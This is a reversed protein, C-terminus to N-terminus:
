GGVWGKGTPALFVEDVQADLERDPEAGDQDLAELLEWALGALVHAPYIRALDALQAEVRGV